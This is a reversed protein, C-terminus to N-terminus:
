KANPTFDSLVHSESRFIHYQDFSIDNLMTAYPGYTRFTEDWESLIRVSRARMISISRQPCIYTKGGIEVPGYEILIDSRALPSTSKPDAKVEFRLVVGSDPDVAIEEHYGTYRDFAEEGDGDPLCCLWEQYQTRGTPIVNQFVAVRGLTGREWRSWTFGGNQKIDNLLGELAPGFVGYTILQPEKPKRKPPKTEVVEFGRRYHVTTSWSDTVHLPRYNVSTGAELYMPTEQYRITTQRAFLDPLRHITTDLYATTLSLMHQQVKLDPPPEIPVENAPPELFASSDALIRLEEEVRKGHAKESWSALRAQSLRETLTLKSLQKALEEDSDGRTKILLQELQEVSVSMPPPIQDISYYPQDYFGTNTRAIVGPRDIMVKLDRYENPNDAPFPDFSIRYFPGADRVCSEIEQVLDFGENLVRGGSQVALVKRYLNMFNAKHPNRVGDLYGKYIQRQALAPNSDPATSLSSPDIEGVTFSYLALRAERLLTSFWWVADFTQWIPSGAKAEASAGSGIGWGPGVWLLLKRGPRRREDTAIQGLAKLASESPTDKFDGTAPVTGKRWGRNYRVVTLDSHEIERALINGDGSPHQVTWLGTESLLFVTIPHALHGGDKRLYTEVADRERRALDVPLDLTDILLIIKVPPETQAERGDFAQFSIIRQTRGNELLNFDALELGPVAKGAADAVTVDLKILGEANDRTAVSATHQVEAPVQTVAPQAYALSPAACALALYSPFRRTMRLADFRM